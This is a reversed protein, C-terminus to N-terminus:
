KGSLLAFYGWDWVPSKFRRQLYDMIGTDDYGTVRAMVVIIDRIKDYTMDYGNNIWNIFITQKIAAYCVSAWQMGAYMDDQGGDCRLLGAFIENALYNRILGEYKKMFVGFDSIDRRMREEDCGASIEEAKKATEPLLQDYLGQKLYDYILDLLVENREEMCELPDSKARRVAGALKKIFGKDSYVAPDFSGKEKICDRLDLLIYYGMMMAEEPSFCSDIILGTLIDRIKEQQTGAEEIQGDSATKIVSFDTSNMMDVVAPCGAAVTHETRAGSQRDIRPFIRCTEPIADQGYGLEVRCLGDPTLCRCRGDAGFVIKKGDCDSGINCDLTQGANIIDSIESWRDCTADDVSIRWQQCCTYPCKGATCRFKKYYSSELIYM